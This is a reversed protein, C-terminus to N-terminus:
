LRSRLYHTLNVGSETLLSGVLTVGYDDEIASQLDMIFEKENKYPIIEDSKAQHLGQARSM